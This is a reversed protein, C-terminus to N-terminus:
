LAQWTLIPIMQNQQTWFIEGRGAPGTSGGHTYFGEFKPANSCDLSIFSSLLSDTCSRIAASCKSLPYASFMISISCPDGKVTDCSVRNPHNQAIHWPGYM